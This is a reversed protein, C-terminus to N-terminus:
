EECLLCLIASYYLNCPIRLPWRDQHQARLLDGGLTVDLLEPGHGASNLVGGLSSVGCGRQAVQGLAGDGKYYIFVVIKQTFYFHVKM